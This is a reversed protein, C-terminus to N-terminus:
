CISQYEHCKMAIQREARAAARNKQLMIVCKLYTDVALMAKQSESPRKQERM